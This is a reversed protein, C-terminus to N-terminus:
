KAAPKAPTPTEAAKASAKAAAKADALVQAAAARDAAAEEASKAAAAASEKAADTATNLVAILEDLEGVDHSGSTAAPPLNDRGGRNEIARDEVTASEIREWGLPIVQGRGVVRRADTLPDRYIGRTETRRARPDARVRRDRITMGGGIARQEVGDSSALTAAEDRRVQADDRTNTEAM